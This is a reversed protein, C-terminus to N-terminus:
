KSGKYDITLEPWSYHCRECTRDLHEQEIDACSSGHSGWKHYHVSVKNHGCKPCKSNCDFLKTM